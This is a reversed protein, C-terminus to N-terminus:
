QNKVNLTTISHNVSRSTNKSIWTEFTTGSVAQESQPSEEPGWWASTLANSQIVNNDSGELDQATM